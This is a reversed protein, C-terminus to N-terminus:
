SEASRGLQGAGAAHPDRVPLAGRADADRPVQHQNLHPGGADAIGQAEAVLSARVYADVEVLRRTADAAGHALAGLDRQEAGCQCQRARSVLLHLMQRPRLTVMLGTSMLKAIEAQLVEYSQGDLWYRIRRRATRQEREIDV